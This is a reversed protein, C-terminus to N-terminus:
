SLNLEKHIERYLEITRACMAATSFTDRVSRIAAERMRAAADAPLTLAKDLAAALAAADGPPVLFGTEGDRITECAGGHATGVVLRGMAQAEPIVRGFAEPQASSASVVVDSAAYVLPMDDTHEVFVTRVRPALTAARAKLEATYDHRGQDSGVFLVGVPVRLQAAADLLLMQGKWYTLRGPLTLVPLGEPFGLSRRFAAAAEPAVAEPRFKEVDAGRWIRVIKSPDAGYTSVIHNRVCDSVAITRLGDLMVRNYPIKLFRPHTGYLGHWTSIFPVGSLRSARRVCWAPARSRVHMLTFGGSRVIDALRGATRRIVFPNKSALPLTFHAVGLADLKEVLRGGASAVASPIGAQALATAVEVAGREVGGQELAPLVQLIKM